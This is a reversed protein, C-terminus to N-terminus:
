RLLHSIEELENFTYKKLLNRDLHYYLLNLPKSPLYKALYEAAAKVDQLDSEEYRLVDDKQLGLEPLNSKAQYLGASNRSFLATDKLNQLTTRKSIGIYEESRFVVAWSFLPLAVDMAKPYVELNEDAYKKLEALDLISNQPGYKRLNGMNYCMLLVKDVPPIGNKGQNKLQHLRLTASLIKGTNLQRLEGLLAFFRSRSNETWDCDIQLEKFDQKGSQKVKAHVFDTIKQALVKAPLDSDKKFIENAIFVVPILELSDPVPDAFSIPAIPIPNNSYNNDNNVDMIRVYLKKSQFQNVFTHELSDSKYVTKWYYFSTNVERKQKCAAILIIFFVIYKYKM